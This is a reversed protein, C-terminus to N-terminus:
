EKNWFLARANQITRIANAINGKPQRALKWSSLYSESSIILIGRQLETVSDKDKCVM